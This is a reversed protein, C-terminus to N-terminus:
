VWSSYGKNYWNYVVIIVTLLCIDIIILLLM